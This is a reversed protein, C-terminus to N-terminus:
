NYYFGQWDLIVKVTAKDCSSPPTFITTDHIGETFDVIDAVSIDVDKNSDFVYSESSTWRIPYCQSPDKDPFAFCQVIYRMSYVVYVM